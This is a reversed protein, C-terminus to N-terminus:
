RRFYMQKAFQQRFNPLSALEVLEMESSLQQSLELKERSLAALRAGLGAANGVAAIKGNLEYPILGTRCASEPNLASGFAGALLVADIDELSVNLAEALLIIGAAIAGKALQVQRIDEQTLYVNGTLPLRDEGTLIKGRHNILGKELFVAIADILGSGCIGKAASDGIVHCKIEGNELYVRDIAGVAGRMGCEINAGELAPGAATACCVMRERSGLVIEGNTGIDVLLTLRDSEHLDTALVCAVTDAGVYGSVDPVILLEANECVPLYAKASLTKAERIAPEFPIKILNNVDIGLFLQQMAPNGVVSVTEIEQPATNAESCVSKILETMCECILKQQETLTGKAASQIRSVVDAGYSTQPNVCGKAALLTGDHSMLYCVVSTTGIDFAIKADTGQASIEASASDTLVQLSDPSELTVTMNRDVITKCSLVKEGGITVVCKGCKGNGGCFAEPALCAKRLVSLLATGGEATLTIGDPLVTVIYESM